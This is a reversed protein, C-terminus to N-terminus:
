MLTHSLPRPSPEDALLAALVSALDRALFCLHREGEQAHGGWYVVTGVHAGAVTLILGETAAIPLLDAPIRDKFV